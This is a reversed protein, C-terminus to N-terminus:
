PITVVVKVNGKVKGASVFGIAGPTAGVKELVEDDSGLAEPAKGNGSLQVRMWTKKLDSETKGIFGYFKERVGAVKSDFVVVKEGSPWSKSDLVYISTAQAATLADTGVAKNAIVAVQAHVAASGLVLLMLMVFSSKM